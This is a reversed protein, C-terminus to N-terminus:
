RAVLLRLLFVGVSFAGAFFAGVLFFGLFLGFGWVGIFFAGDFFGGDAVHVTVFCHLQLYYPHHLTTRPYPTNPINVKRVM